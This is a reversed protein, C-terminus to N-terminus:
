PSAMCFMKYHAPFRELGCERGMVRAVCWMRSVGCERCAVHAVCWVGDALCAVSYVCFMLSV